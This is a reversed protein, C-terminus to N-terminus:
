CKCTLIRPSAIKVYPHSTLPSGGPVTSITSSRPLCQPLQSVARHLSFSQCINDPPPPTHRYNSHPQTLRLARSQYLTFSRPVAMKRWICNRQCLHYDLHIFCDRRLYGANNRLAKNMNIMKLRLISLILEDWSISPLHCRRILWRGSTGREAQFKM